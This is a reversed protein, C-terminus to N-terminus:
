PRVLGVVQSAQAAVECRLRNLHMGLIVRNHLQSGPPLMEIWITIGAGLDFRTGTKFVEREDVAKAWAQYQYLWEFHSRDPQILKGTWEEAAFQSEILSWNRGPFPGFRIYFIYENASPGDTPDYVLAQWFNAISMFPMILM